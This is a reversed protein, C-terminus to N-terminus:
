NPKFKRFNESVSTVLELDYDRRDVPSVTAGGDATVAVGDEIATILATVDADTDDVIDSGSLVLGENLTPIFMRTFTGISSQINVLLKHAIDSISSATAQLGLGTLDVGLCGTVSTIRCSSLDALVQASGQGFEIIDTITAGTVPINIKTSSTKGKDDLFAFTFRIVVLSM